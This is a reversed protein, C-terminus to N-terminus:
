STSDSQPITSSAIAQWEDVEMSGAETKYHLESCMKYVLRHPSLRSQVCYQQVPLISIKIGNSDATHSAVKSVELM